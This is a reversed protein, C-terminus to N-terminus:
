SNYSDYLSQLERPTIIDGCWLKRGFEILTDLLLIAEEKTLKSTNPKLANEYYAWWFKVKEVWFLAKLCNQKVTESSLWMKKGIVDFCRYFSNNQLLTRWEKSLPIEELYYEKTDDAFVLYKEIDQKSWIMSFLYKHYIM